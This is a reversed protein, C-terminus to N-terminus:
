EGDNELYVFWVAVVTYDAALAMTISLDQGAYARTAGVWTTGKPATKNWKLQEGDLDKTKLDRLELKAEKAVHNWTKVFCTKLEKIEPQTSLKATKFKKCSPEEDSQVRVALAQKKGYSMPEIAQPDTMATLWGNAAIMSRSQKDAIAVSSMSLGLVILALRTV